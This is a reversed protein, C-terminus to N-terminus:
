VRFGLASVLGWVKIGLGYVRLGLGQGGVGFGL